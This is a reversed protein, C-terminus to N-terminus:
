VSLSGERFDTGGIHVNVVTPKGEKAMRQAERLVGPVDESGSRVELGSAGYGEAVINYATYDLM